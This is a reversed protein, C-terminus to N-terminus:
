RESQTKAKKYKQKKLHMKPPYNKYTTLDQIYCFGSAQLYLLNMRNISEMYKSKEKLYEELTPM